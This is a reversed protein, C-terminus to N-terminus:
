LLLHCYLVNLAEANKAASKLRDVSKFVFLDYNGKQLANKQHYM